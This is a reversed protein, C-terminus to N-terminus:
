NEKYKMENRQTRVMSVGSMLWRAIIPIVM